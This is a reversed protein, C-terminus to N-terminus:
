GARRQRIQERMDRAVTPYFLPSQQRWLRAYKIRFSSMVLKHQSEDPAYDNLLTEFEEAEIPEPVEQSDPDDVISPDPIRKPSRPPGFNDAQRMEDRTYVGELEEPFAARYAAVEACKGLQQAAWTLWYPDEVLGKETNIWPVYSSWEALGRIAAVDGDRHVGCRAWTPPAVSSDWQEHWVEDPGAWEINTRGRCLGTRRALLRVAEITTIIVLKMSDSAGDYRYEPHLHRCFISLQRQHAVEKFAAWAEPYDALQPYFMELHLQDKQEETLSLSLQKMSTRRAMPDAASEGTIKENPLVDGFEAIYLDRLAKEPKRAKKAGGPLDFITANDVEASGPALPTIKKGVVKFLLM